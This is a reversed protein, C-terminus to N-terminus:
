SGVASNITLSEYDSARLQSQQCYRTRLRHDLRGRHKVRRFTDRLQQANAKTTDGILLLFLILLTFNILLLKRLSRM